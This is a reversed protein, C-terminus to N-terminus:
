TRFGHRCSSDIPIHRDFHVISQQQTRVHETRDGVTSVRDDHRMARVCLPERELLAELAHPVPHHGGMRIHGGSRGVFILVPFDDIRLFPHGISVYANADIRAAGAARRTVHIHPRRAFRLIVAIADFPRRDLGPAVALDTQVSNGIVRHIFPLHGRQLRRVQRRYAHPFPGGIEVAIDVAVAADDVHHRQAPVGPLNAAHLM